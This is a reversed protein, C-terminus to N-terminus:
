SHRSTNRLMEFDKMCANFSHNEGQSAQCVVSADDGHNCTIISSYLCEQITNETGMCQVVNLNILGTGPGFYASGIATSASHIFINMAFMM